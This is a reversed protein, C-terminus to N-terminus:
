KIIYQVFLVQCTENEYCVRGEIYYQTLRAYLKKVKKLEDTTTGYQNVNGQKHNSVYIENRNKHRYITIEGITVIPKYEILNKSKIQTFSIDNFENDIAMHKYDSNDILKYLATQQKKESIPSHNPCIVLMSRKDNKYIQKGAKKMKTIIEVLGFKLLTESALTNSNALMVLKLPADGNLERNRNITEYCNFIANSENKLPREHPEPCFEDLIMYKIDKGSFGRKNSLTSLAGLLGLCEGVKVYKGAEDNFESNYYGYIGKTVTYPYIAKGEDDNLWNFVNMENNAIGQVQTDTRRMYIFKYGKDIMYKLTGYTKGTGRGTVLVVFTYPSEIIDPMNLYGNELFLNKDNIAM